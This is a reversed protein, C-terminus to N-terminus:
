IAVGEGERRLLREERVGHYMVVSWLECLVFMVLVFLMGVTVCM